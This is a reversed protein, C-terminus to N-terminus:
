IKSEIRDFKLVSFKVLEGLIHKKRDFTHSLKIVM